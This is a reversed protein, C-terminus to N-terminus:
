QVEIIMFGNHITTEKKSFSAIHHLPKFGGRWALAKLNL